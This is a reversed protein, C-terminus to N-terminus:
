IVIFYMKFSQSKPKSVSGKYISESRTPLRTESESRTPLRTESESRTPLRTESESRTPLRTESGKRGHIDDSKYQTFNSRPPLKRRDM